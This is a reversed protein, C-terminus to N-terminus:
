STVFFMDKSCPRYEDYPLHDTGKWKGMTNNLKDITGFISIKKFPGEKNKSSM